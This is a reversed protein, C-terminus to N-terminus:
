RGLNRKEWQKLKQQSQPDDPDVLVATRYMEAALTDNLTLAYVDGLCWYPCAVDPALSIATKFYTIANDNKGWTFYLNGFFLNVWPNEPDIAIARDFYAEADTFKRQRGLKKAIAVLVDSDAEDEDALLQDLTLSELYFLYDEEKDFDQRM